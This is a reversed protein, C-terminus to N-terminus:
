VVPALTNSTVHRHETTLALSASDVQGLTQASIFADFVMSEAPTLAAVAQEVRGRERKSVPTKNAHIGECRMYLNALQLLERAYKLKPANPQKPASNQGDSALQRLSQGQDIGSFKGGPDNNAGKDDKPPPMMPKGDPGMVMGMAKAKANDQAALDKEKDYEVSLGSVRNTDEVFSEGSVLDKVLGLATLQADINKMTIGKSKMKTKKVGLAPIITKNIIEDFEMREPQFVQEEAVMYATYATAFNYDAPEGLFLPPLRFSKRVHNEAREDYTAYLSDNVSDAGFREVQVDVKAATDDVSGGSSQVPAIVVRNRTKTQGSLLNRLEQDAKNAVAGGLLFIIAPPVGGADFFELNQEETKRSGIVSPMQNIWRPLGYSTDVDRNVYFFLLESARDNPAVPVPKVATTTGDDAKSVYETPPKKEPKKGFVPKPAGPDANPDVEGPKVAPVIPEITPVSNVALGGWQGTSKNLDRSAGFEKYYVLKRNSGMCMVYRRERVNYTLETDKGNRQVTKTVQVQDDLKVMRVDKSIVNRCGVVEGVVNRLVELAGWGLAELESRLQRRVSVFSEGPIPEGFFSELVTKEAEDPPEDEVQGVFEFGTGDINVEMAEICQALINNLNPLRSLVRPDFPPELVINQNAEAGTGYYLGFFDDEVERASDSIVMFTDNGVRKAVVTVEKTDPRKKERKAVTTQPPPATFKLTM